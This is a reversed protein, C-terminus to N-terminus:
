TRTDDMTTNTKKYKQVTKPFSAEFANRYINLFENYCENVSQHELVTTFSTHELTGLFNTTTKKNINRSSKSQTNEHITKHPLKLFTGYHDAIDTIVIGSNSHPSIKNCYIHDILTASTHSIRTPKTIFPLFGYSFLLELYDNTKSHHGYKMLDINIDGMIVAHKDESNITEMIDNM